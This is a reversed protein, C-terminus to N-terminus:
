RTNSTPSPSALFRSHEARDLWLASCQNAVLPFFVSLIRGKAGATLAGRLGHERISGGILNRYSTPKEQVYARRVLADFPVTAAATTLGAGILFAARQTTSLPQQREQEKLLERGLFTGATGVANRAAMATGLKRYQMAMDRLSLAQGTQKARERAEMPITVAAELLGSFPACVVPRLLPTAIYDEARKMNAHTFNVIGCANALTRAFNWGNGKYLGGFGEQQWAHRLTQLAPEKKGAQGAEKIVLCPGVGIQAITTPIAPMLLQWLSFSPTVVPPTDHNSPMTM